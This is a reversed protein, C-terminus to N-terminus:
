SWRRKIVRLVQSLFFSFFTQDGQSIKKYIGEREEKERGGGGRGWEGLVKIEKRLCHMLKAKNHGGM